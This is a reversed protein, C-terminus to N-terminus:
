RRVRAQVELEAIRRDLYSREEASANLRAYAAELRTLDDLQVRVRDAAEGRGLSPLAREIAALRDRPSQQWGGGYGPAGGPLRADLADLRAEIDERERISLGDRQFGAEAQVIAAYDARLRTAETRTLTRARM